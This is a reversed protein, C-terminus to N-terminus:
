GIVVDECEQTLPSALEFRSSAPDSILSAPHDHNKDSFTAVYAGLDHPLVVHPISVGTTCLVARVVRVRQKISRVISRPTGQVPARPAALANPM